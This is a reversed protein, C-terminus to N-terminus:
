KLELQDDVNGEGAISTAILIIRDREAVTDVPGRLTVRGNATVIKINQANTSFGTSETLSKRIQQTVALDEASEVQDAPLTTLGERDRENVATNDAKAPPTSTSSSDMRDCAPLSAFTMLALAVILLTKM